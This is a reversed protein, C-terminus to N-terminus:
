ARSPDGPRGKIRQLIHAVNGGGAGFGTAAMRDLANGDELPEAEQNPRSMDMGKADGENAVIEAVLVVLVLGDAQLVMKGKLIECLCAPGRSSAMPALGAADGRM